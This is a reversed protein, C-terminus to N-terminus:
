ARELKLLMYRRDRSFQAPDILGVNDAAVEAVHGLLGDLLHHLGPQKRRLHLVASDMLPLGFRTAMMHLFALFPLVHATVDQEYALRWGAATVRAVFANWDHCTRKASPRTLFYDCAVWSGGPRLVAQIVPLAPDVFLAQRLGADVHLGGDIEVPPFLVPVSAAALLIARFRDLRGADVPGDTSGVDPAAEAALRSMPWVHLAGSDVEVTAVYLRRGLRHEAAVRRLTDAKVARAILRRLPATDLAADPPGGVPGAFVDADRAHLYVDRLVADDQPRGLFAFTAMLAGTSVGTVVDFPPRPHGAADRWGALVGCGFAGHADGGSLLLVNAPPRAGRLDDAVDADRARADAAAVARAATPTLGDFRSPGRGVCGAVAVAVLAALAASPGARTPIAM